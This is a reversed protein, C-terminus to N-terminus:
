RLSQLSYALRLWTRCTNRARGRASPRNLGWAERHGAETMRLSFPSSGGTQDRETETQEEM